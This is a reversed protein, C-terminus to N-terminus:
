TVGSKALWCGVQPWAVAVPGCGAEWCGTSYALAGGRSSMGMGIKSWAGCRKTYAVVEGLPGFGSVADAAAGDWRGGLWPGWSV